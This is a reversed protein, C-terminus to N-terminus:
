NQRQHHGGGPFFRVADVDAEEFRTGGGFQAFGWTASARYNFRTMFQTYDSAGPNMLEVVGSVGPETALSGIGPVLRIASDLGSETVEPATADFGVARFGWRYDSAGEDFTAGGDSSTRMRYTAGDNSPKVNLFM